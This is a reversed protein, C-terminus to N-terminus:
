GQKFLGEPRFLLIAAMLVYVLVGAVGPF